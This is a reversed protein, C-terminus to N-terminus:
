RYMYSIVLTRLKREKKINKKEGGGEGVELSDGEVKKRTQHAESHTCEFNLSSDQVTTFLSIRIKHSRSIHQFAKVM